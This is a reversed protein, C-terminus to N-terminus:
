RDRELRAQYGDAMSGTIVVTYTRGFDAKFSVADTRMCYEEPYDFDYDPEFYETVIIFQLKLDATGAPRDPFQQDFSWYETGSRSIMSRDANSAGSMGTQGNVDWATLLLGIDEELDLRIEVTIGNGARPTGGCGAAAFVSLAAALFLVAARRKRRIQREM